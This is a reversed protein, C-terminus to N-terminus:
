PPSPAFPGVLGHAAMLAGGELVLTLNGTTRSTRAARGPGIFRIGGSVGPFRQFGVSSGRSEIGPWVSQCSAAPKVGTHLQNCMWVMHRANGLATRATYRAMRVPCALAFGQKCCPKSTSEVAVVVNRPATRPTYPGPAHM